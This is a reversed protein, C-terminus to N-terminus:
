WVEVDAGALPIIELSGQYIEVEGTVRLRTGPGLGAPMYEVLREPCFILMEGTDDKLWLRLWGRGEIRSLTGAV